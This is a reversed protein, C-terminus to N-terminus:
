REQELRSRTFRIVAMRRKQTFWHEALQQSIQCHIQIVFFSLEQVAQQVLHVALLVVAVVAVVAALTSQERRVSRVLTQQLNVATEAAALEAQQTQLV